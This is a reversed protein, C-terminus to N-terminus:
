KSHPKQDKPQEQSNPQGETNEKKQLQDKKIGDQYYYEAARRRRIASVSATTVDSQSQGETIKLEEKSYQSSLLLLGASADTVGLAFVVSFSVVLKKM